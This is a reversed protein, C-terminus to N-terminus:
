RREGKQGWESGSLLTLAYPPQTIAKAYAPTLYARDAESQTIYVRFFALSLANQYDHAIQKLTEWPTTSGTLRSLADYTVRAHPLGQTLALYHDSRQAPELLDPPNLAAFAPLQEVVLPTLIDLDTVQWLIPINVQALNPGFLSKGFPVFLFAAQIREDQLSQSLDPAPLELARCQYLLSINVLGLETQCDTKLFEPNLTAGALSLATSGGFSYGFMGVRKLNLRQGLETQNLHELENLLSTIDKPRDLYERAEFNERHQGAYFERLRQRDSGPHDPIAIAFGHSVLHLAIEDFRDRGAGLGNSMVIVPTAPDPTEGDALTPLYLDAAFQRQRDPDLIQLSRKQYTFPGPLRLDAAPDLNPWSSPRPGPRETAALTQQQNFQAVVAETDRLIGQVRRVLKLLRQLDIRLDTPFQQLFSLVTMGEPQAAALIAASRIAQGGNLRSETQLIDGVEGLLREGSSTYSFREVVLPDLRYRAQLVAQLQQQQAPTTLWNLYYGLRGTLAGTQAFDELEAVAVSRGLISFDFYIREAARVPWSLGLVLCLGLLALRWSFRKIM